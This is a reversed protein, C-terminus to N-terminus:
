MSRTVIQTQDSRFKNILEFLKGNEGCIPCNKRGCVGDRNTDRPCPVRFLSDVFDKGLAYLEVVAQAKKSNKESSKREEKLAEVAEIVKRRAEDLKSRLDTVVHRNHQCAPCLIPTGPKSSCLDCEAFEGVTFIRATMPKRYPSDSGLEFAKLKFSLDAVEQKLKDREKTVAEDNQKGYAIIFDIVEAGADSTMEKLAEFIKHLRSVEQRVTELETQLKECGVQETEKEDFQQRCNAIIREMPPKGFGRNAGYQLFDAALREFAARVSSFKRRALETERQREELESKTKDLEAKIEEVYDRTAQWQKWLKDQEEKLNEMSAQLKGNEGYEKQLLDSLRKGEAISGQLNEASKKVEDEPESIEAHQKNQAHDVGTLLIQVLNDLSVGNLNTMSPVLRHELIKAIVQKSAEVIGRNAAKVTIWEGSDNHAMGLSTWTYRIM